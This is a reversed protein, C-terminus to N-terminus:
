ARTSFKGMTAYSDGAVFTTTAGLSGDPSVRARSPYGALTVSATAHMAADFIVATTTTLLGAAGRTLCVGRGAAYDVRDCRMSTVLRAGAPDDAPALGVHGFNRDLGTSRFVLFPNAEIRLLDASPRSAAAPATGGVRPDGSRVRLAFVVAAAACLAVVAALAVLRRRTSAAPRTGARAPRDLLHTPM